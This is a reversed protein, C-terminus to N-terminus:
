LGKYDCVFLLLFLVGKCFSQLNKLNHIYNTSDDLCKRSRCLVILCWVMFARLCWQYLAGRVLSVLYYASCVGDGKVASVLLFMPLLPFWPLCGEDSHVSVFVLCWRYM